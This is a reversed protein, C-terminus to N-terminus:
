DVWGKQKRKRDRQIQKGRKTKTRTAHGMPSVQHHAGIGNGKNKRKTTM